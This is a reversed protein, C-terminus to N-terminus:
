KGCLPRHGFQFAGLSEMEGRSKATRFPVSTPSTLSQFSLLLSEDTGLDLTIGTVMCDTENVSDPSAFPPMSDQGYNLDGEIM